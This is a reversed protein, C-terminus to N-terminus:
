AGAAKSGLFNGTSMETVPMTSRLWLAELLMIDIFVHSLYLQLIVDNEPKVNSVTESTM